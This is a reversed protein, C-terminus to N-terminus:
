PFTAILKPRNLQIPQKRRALIATAARQFEALSFLRVGRRLVQDEPKLTILTRHRLHPVLYFDQFWKNEPDLRAILTVLDRDNPHVNFMWRFAGSAIRSSRVVYVAILSGDNLQLRPRHRHDCRSIAISGAASRVLNDMLWERLKMGQRYAKIGAKRPGVYGILDFANTLSGFRHWYTCKSALEPTSHLLRESLTGHKKLAIRLDELLEEDTKHLTQCTFKEQARDFVAQEVIPKWAAQNVVWTARPMPIRPTHLKGSRQGWVAHGAYKPNKLIREVAEKYWHHRTTAGPFVIRRCNLETAIAQPFKNEETFMRFIERVCAVENRPGPVLIVRDETVNKRQGSLLVHKPQRTPSVLMRRYGYGPVGGQRFGLEVLHKAGASVKVSLDRSFEAAMMRRLSKMIMNPLAGDNMFMEACYHVPIGASRCLFEYHASEDTDQFRGWRSVDYVLILKYDADGFVVDKILKRLGDRQNLVVGSRGADVYTSTVRYGHESAYLAIAAAQNELSYQQHETSMRLYQAVPVCQQTQMIEEM